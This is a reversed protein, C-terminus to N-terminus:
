SEGGPPACAERAVRERLAPPLLDMRNHRRALEIYEEDTIAAIAAFIGGQAKVEHRESVRGETRDWLEKAFPFKGTLAEKLIREALVEVIPRGNHEQELLERLVGTLTRGKARGAPNGSLGPLFGKGTV